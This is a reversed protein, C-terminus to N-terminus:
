GALVVVPALTALAMATALGLLILRRLKAVRLNEAHSQTSFEETEIVHAALVMTIVTKKAACVRQAMEVTYPPYSALAPRFQALIM